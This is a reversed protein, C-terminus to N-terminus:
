PGAVYTYDLKDLPVKGDCVGKIAQWQIPVHIGDTFVIKLSYGTAYRCMGEALSTIHLKYLPKSAAESEAGYTMTVLITSGDLTINAVPIQKNTMEKSFSALDPATQTPSCADLLLAGILLSLLLTIRYM